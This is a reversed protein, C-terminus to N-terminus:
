GVGRLLFDSASTMTSGRSIVVPGRVAEVKVIDQGSLHLLIQELIEIPLVTLCSM